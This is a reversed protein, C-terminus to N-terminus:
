LDEYIFGAWLGRGSSCLRNAGGRTTQRDAWNDLSTTDNLPNGAPDVILDMEGTQRAGEILKEGGRKIRTRKRATLAEAALM